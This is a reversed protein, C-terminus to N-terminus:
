VYNWICSQSIRNLAKFMNPDNLLAARIDGEYTPIDVDNIEALVGTSPTNGTICFKEIRMNTDYVVGSVHNILLEIIPNTVDRYVGQLRAIILNPHPVNANINVNIDHKNHGMRLHLNADRGMKVAMCTDYAIVADPVVGRLRNAM